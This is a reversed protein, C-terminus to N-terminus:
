MDGAGAVHGWEEGQWIGMARTVHVGGSSCAGKGQWMLGCVAVPWWRRGCVGVGQWMDGAGAVHGWGEGRGYAGLGQSKGGGRGCSGVGQWCEQWMSGCGVVHGWVRGFAGYRDCTVMLAMPRVGVVYRLRAM